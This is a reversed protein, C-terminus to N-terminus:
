HGGSHTGASCLLRLHFPGELQLPSLSPLHIHLPALFPPQNRFEGGSVGNLLSSPHFHLWKGGMRVRRGM